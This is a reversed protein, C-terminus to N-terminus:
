GSWFNGSDGMRCHPIAIGKGFGTSGLEEREELKKLIASEDIEALGEHRKALRAIAALAEQKDALDVDIGICEKRLMEDLNM